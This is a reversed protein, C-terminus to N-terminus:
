SLAQITIVISDDFNYKDCNNGPGDRDVIVFKEGTHLGILPMHWINRHFNIGQAGNSVFAKLQAPDPVASREAVVVIIPKDFLPYFLQTGLPHREVLDVRYPLSTAIECEAIGFVVKADSDDGIDIQALDHFREIAGENISFHFAQNSEVVDGYPAFSKRTLPQANLTFESM